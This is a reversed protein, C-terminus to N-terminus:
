PPSGGFRLEEIIDAVAGDFAAMADAEPKHAALDAFLTGLLALIRTVFPLAILPDTDVSSLLTFLKPGVALGAGMADTFWAPVDGKIVEEIDAIVGDGTSV